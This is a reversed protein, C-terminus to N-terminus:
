SARGALDLHLIKSRDHVLDTFTNYSKVFTTRTSHARKDVGSSVLNGAPGNVAAHGTIWIARRPSGITSTLSRFCLYNLPLELVSCPLPASGLELSRFPPMLSLLKRLFWCDTDSRDFFLRHAVAQLVSSLHLTEALM